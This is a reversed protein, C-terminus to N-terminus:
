EPVSSAATACNLIRSMVGISTSLLLYAGTATTGDVVVTHLVVAGNVERDKALELEFAEGDLLGVLLNLVQNTGVEHEM